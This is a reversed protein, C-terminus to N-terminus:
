QHDLIYDVYNKGRRATMANSKISLAKEYYGLADRYKEKCALANGKRGLAEVDDGDSRIVNDFCRIADDARGLDLYARGLAILHKQEMTEAKKELKSLNTRAKDVRKLAKDLNKEALEHGPFTKLAQNYYEVAKDTNGFFAQQYGLFELESAEHLAIQSRAHKAMAADGIKDAAKALADYTPMSELPKEFYEECENIKQKIVTYLEEGAKGDNVMAIARDLTDVTTKLNWDVELDRLEGIM